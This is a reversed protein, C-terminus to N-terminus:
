HSCGCGSGCGEKATEEKKSKCCGSSNKKASDSCCGGSKSGSSCGCGGRSQKLEQETAERANTVTCELTLTEGAYPHNSDMTIINEDIKLVKLMQQGGGTDFQYLKGEEMQDVLHEFHSRPVPFVNEAKYEGYADEPSISGKYEFGISKGEIAKEIGPMMMGVGQIFALPGNLESSDIINGKEDILKYELLVVTNKNIVM